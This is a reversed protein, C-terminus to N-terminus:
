LLWIDVIQYGTRLWYYRMALRPTSKERVDSFLVRGKRPSLRDEFTFEDFWYGGQRKTHPDLYPEVLTGFTVEGMGQYLCVFDGLQAPTGDEHTPNISISLGM